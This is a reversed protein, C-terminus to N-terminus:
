RRLVLEYAADLSGSVIPNVVVIQYTDGRWLMKDTRPNPVISIGQRAVVCTMDEQQFLSGDAIRKISLPAPPSISVAHNATSLANDGTAVNYTATERVITAATGFTNDILKTALNGFITDFKSV